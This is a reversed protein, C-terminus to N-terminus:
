NNQIEVINHFMGWGAASDYIDISAAPVYLTASVGSFVSNNITQPTTAHNVIKSLAGCDQFASNGISRVSRPITVETLKGCNRFADEGISTITNPIVISVLGSNQFTGDMISTVLRPITIQTLSWCGRFARAGISTVSNPITVSILSRCGFFAGNGISTVSNPIIVSTLESYGAFMNNGISTFGNSIVISRVKSQFRSMNAFTNNYLDGTGNIAFTREIIDYVWSYSSFNGKVQPEFSFFNWPATGAYVAERGPPIELYIFGLDLGQFVNIVVTAPNELELPPVRGEVKIKVLGSCGAFAQNGIKTVSGPITIETLSRCNYFTAVDIITVSNPINISTLSVCEYFAGVGISAVSNPITVSTLRTCDSFANRGISTVGQEIVVIRINNRSNFWPRPTSGTHYDAMPGNGRVTLVGSNDLTVTTFASRWEQGVINASCFCVAVFFVIIKKVFTMKKRPQQSESRKSLNKFQKEM